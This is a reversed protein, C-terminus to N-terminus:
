RNRNESSSIYVDICFLIYKVKLVPNYHSVRGECQFNILM